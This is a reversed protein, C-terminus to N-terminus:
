GVTLKMQMQKLLNTGCRSCQQDGEYNVEGCNSCEVTGLLRYKRLYEARYKRSAEGQPTEGDSWGAIMDLLPDSFIKDMCGEHDSGRAEPCVDDAREPKYGDYKARDADRITKSM